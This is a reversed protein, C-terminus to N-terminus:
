NFNPFEAHCNGVAESVRLTREHIRVLSLSGNSLLNVALKGANVHLLDRM